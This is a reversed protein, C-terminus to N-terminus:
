DAAGVAVVSRTQLGMVLQEGPEVRTLAALEVDSLTHLSQGVSLNLTVTPDYKVHRSMREQSGLM